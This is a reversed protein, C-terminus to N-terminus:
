FMCKNYIEQPGDLYEFPRKAIIILSAKTQCCNGVHPRQMISLWDSYINRQGSYASRREARPHLYLLLLRISQSTINTWRKVYIIANRIFRNPSSRIAISDTLARHKKYEAYKPAGEMMLSQFEEGLLRPDLKYNELSAELLSPALSTQLSLDPPDGAPPLSTHRGQLAGTEPIRRNRKTSRQRINLIVIM